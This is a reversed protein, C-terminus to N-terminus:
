HIPIRKHAATCLTKTRDDCFTELLMQVHYLHLTGFKINKSYKTKSNRQYCVCLCVSWKSFIRKESEPVEFRDRKDGPM